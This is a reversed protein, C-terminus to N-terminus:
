AEGQSQNENAQAIGRKLAEEPFSNSGDEIMAQYDTITKNQVLEEEKFTKITAKCKEINALIMAKNFEM